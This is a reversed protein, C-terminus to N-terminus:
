PMVGRRYFQVVDGGVGVTAGYRDGWGAFASASVFMRQTLYLRSGVVADARLDTHHIISDQFDDYSNMGVMGKIFPIFRGFRHQYGISVDGGVLATSNNGFGAKGARFGVAFLFGSDMLVSPRVEAAAIGGGPSSSSMATSTSNIARNSLASRAVGTTGSNDFSYASVMGDFEVSVRSQAHAGSASLVTVLVASALLSVRM